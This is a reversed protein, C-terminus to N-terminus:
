PLRKVIPPDKLRDNGPGLALIIGPPLKPVQLSGVGVNLDTPNEVLMGVGAHHLGVFKLTMGGASITRRASPPLGVPLGPVFPMEEALPFLDEEPGRQVPPILSILLAMGDVVPRGNFQDTGWKLAELVAERPHTIVKILQQLDFIRLDAPVFAASAAPTLERRLVGFLLFAGGIKPHSVTLTEYVIYDLLRTPFVQAIAAGSAGLTNWVTEPTHLIKNFLNTVTDGKTQLEKLTQGPQLFDLNLGSLQDALSKWAQVATALQGLVADGPDAIGLEKLLARLADHVSTPSPNQFPKAFAVAANRVNILISQLSSEDAM